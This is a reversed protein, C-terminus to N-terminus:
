LDYRIFMTPYEYLITLKDPFNCHVTWEQIRNLDLANSEDGCLHNMTWAVDLSLQCTNIRMQFVLNGMSDFFINKLADYISIKIVWYQKVLMVLVIRKLTERARAQPRNKLCSASTAYGLLGTGDGKWMLRKRGESTYFWVNITWSHHCRTQSPPRRARLPARPRHQPGPEVGHQSANPNWDVAHREINLVFPWTRFILETDELPTKQLNVSIIPTAHARRQSLLGHRCPYHGSITSQTTREYSPGFLGFLLTYLTSM